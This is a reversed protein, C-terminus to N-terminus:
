KTVAQKGLRSAETSPIYDGSPLYIFTENGGNKEMAKIWLYRLYEDSLSSNITTAAEALAKAAALQGEADAVQVKRSYEAHALEAEGNLRSSWVNYQPLAWMILGIFIIAIFGLVLFVLCDGTESNRNSM